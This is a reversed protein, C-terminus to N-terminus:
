MTASGFPSSNEISATAIADGYGGNGLVAIFSMGGRTARAMSDAHAAPGVTSECYASQLLFCPSGSGAPRLTAFAVVERCTLGGRRVGCLAKAQTRAFM